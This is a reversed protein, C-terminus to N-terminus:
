MCDGLDNEVLVLVELTAPVFAVAVAGVEVGIQTTAVRGTHLAPGPHDVLSWVVQTVLVDQLPPFVGVVVAPIAEIVSDARALHNVKYAM